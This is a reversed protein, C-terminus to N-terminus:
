GETKLTRIRKAIDRAYSNDGREARRAADELAENREEGVYSNTGDRKGFDDATHVSVKQGCTECNHIKKVM